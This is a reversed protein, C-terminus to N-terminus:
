TTNRVIGTSTQQIQLGTILQREKVWSPTAMRTGIGHSVSTRLYRDRDNESHGRRSLQIDPTWKVDILQRTGWHDLRRELALFPRRGRATFSKKTKLHVLCTFLSNTPTSCRIVLNLWHNCYSLIRPNSTLYSSAPFIHTPGHTPDWDDKGIWGGLWNEWYKRTPLPTTPLPPLCILAQVSGERRLRFCTGLRGM